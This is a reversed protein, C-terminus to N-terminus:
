VKYDLPQQNFCFKLYIVGGGGFVHLMLNIKEGFIWKEMFRNVM